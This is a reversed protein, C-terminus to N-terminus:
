QMLEPFQVQRVVQVIGFCGSLPLKDQSGGGGGWLSNNSVM